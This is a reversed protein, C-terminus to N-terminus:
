ARWGHARSSTKRVAMVARAFSTTVCQGRVWTTSRRAKHALLNLQTASCRSAIPDSGARLEVDARATAWDLSPHFRSSQRCLLHAQCGSACHWPEVPIEFRGTAARVTAAAFPVRRGSSGGAM